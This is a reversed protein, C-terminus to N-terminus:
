RRGSVPRRLQQGLDLSRALADRHRREAVVVGFEAVGGVLHELIQDIGADDFPVGVPIVIALELIRRGGLPARLPQEHDSAGGRLDTTESTANRFCQTFRYADVKGGGAMPERLPPVLVPSRM